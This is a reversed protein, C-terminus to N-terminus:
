HAHHSFKKGSQIYIGDPITKSVLCGSLNYIHQADGEKKDAVAKVATTNGLYTLKVDSLFCWTNGENGSAELGLTVPGDITLEFDVAYLSYTASNVATRNGNAFLYVGAKNQGGNNNNWVTAAAYGEFHYKGAPLSEITQYILKSNSIANGRWHSIGYGSHAESQIAAPLEAYGAAECNDRLWGSRTNASITANEILFSANGTLAIYTSLNDRIFADMGEELERKMCNLLEKETISEIAALHKEVIGRLQQRAEAKYAENEYLLRAQEAMALYSNKAEQLPDAKRNASLDFDDTLSGIRTLEFGTVCFWGKTGGGNTSAYGIRLTGEEGVYITETTQKEWHDASWIDDKKVPSKVLHLPTEAYVHQDNINGEGCLSLASVRYLGAELGTIDQYINLSTFNNSWNNYCTKGQITAARFDGGAAVNSVTWGNDGDTFDANVVEGSGTNNTLAKTLEDYSGSEIAKQLSEAQEPTVSASEIDVIGQAESKLMKSMETEDGVVYSAFSKPALTCIVMKGDVDFSLTKETSDNNGIVIVVNGDPTLASTILNAEDCMLIKSGAPILHTYHKYAYYEPCYRATKTNSGVQVLANQRWGWTSHGLDTLITNWYTYTMVGNALYHNCLYFTHAAANWDFTGSGCESETMVSEYDPYAKRVAGIQQGGEWQFGIQKCYKGINPTNLITEYVDYHNTNMTGIILNLNPQHEAMYPGLYNALFKGTTEAKWACGPYPTYSYAENQYALATIPIGQEKYAEIFKDFYLCYANYYRADNVFQDTTYPPADVPCGNTGNNRQAYHKNTKMWQPPSWPSAWFTMNPNEKQAAKISPIVKKLDREITFHEMNFDEVNGETEDCSYWDCAYDSAGVPIRGVTLRLDGNPNFVRKLFLQKDAESLLNWADYDLENFTTGWGKFTQRAEDTRIVFQAKGITEHVKETKMQWYNGNTSHFSVGVTQALTATPLMMSGIISLLITKNM